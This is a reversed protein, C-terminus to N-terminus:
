EGGENVVEDPKVTLKKVVTTTTPAKTASTSTTATTATVEGQFSVNAMSKAVVYKNAVNGSIFLGLVTLLGGLLSDYTAALSTWRGTVLWCGVIVAAIGVAFWM